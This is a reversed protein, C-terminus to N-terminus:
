KNNDDAPDNDDKDYFPSSSNWVSQKRQLCGTLANFELRCHSTIM